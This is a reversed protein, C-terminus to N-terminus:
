LYNKNQKKRKPKIWEENEAETEKETTEYNSVKKKIQPDKKKLEKAEERLTEIEKANTEIIKNLQDIKKTNRAIEAELATFNQSIVKLFDANNKNTDDENTAENVKELQKSLDRSFLNIRKQTRKMENFQEQPNAQIESQEIVIKKVSEENKQNMMKKTNENSETIIETLKELTKLIADSVDVPNKKVEETVNEEVVKEDNWDDDIMRADDDEEPHKRFFKSNFIPSEDQEQPIIKKKPDATTKKAMPRTVIKKPKTSTTPM